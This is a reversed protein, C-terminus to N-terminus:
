RYGRPLPPRSEAPADVNLALERLLQSYMRKNDLEIRCAPNEKRQGFRDTVVVGESDIIARAERARMLCECALLLTTLDQEELEYSDVVHKYLQAAEESLHSPAKTKM